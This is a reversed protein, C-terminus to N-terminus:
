PIKQLSVPFPRFIVSGEPLNQFNGTLDPRSGGDTGIPRDVDASYIQDQCPTPLHTSNKKNTQLRYSVCSVDPCLVLRCSVDPCLVSSLVVASLLFIVDDCCSVIRSWVVRWSSSVLRYSVVAQVPPGLFSCLVYSLFM